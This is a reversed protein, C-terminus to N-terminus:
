VACPIETDQGPVSGMGGTEFHLARVVPVGPFDWGKNNNNKKKGTKKIKVM